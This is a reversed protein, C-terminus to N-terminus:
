ITGGVTEGTTKSRTQAENRMVREMIPRADVRHPINSGAAQPQFSRRPIGEGYRYRSDPTDAPGLNLDLVKGTAKVRIWYHADDGTGRKYAEVEPDDALHRFAPESTLRWYAQVSRACFGEYQSDDERPDDVEAAIAGESVLEDIARHIAFTLRDPKAFEVTHRRWGARM